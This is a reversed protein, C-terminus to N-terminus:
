DSEDMDLEEIVMISSSDAEAESPVDALSGKNSEPTEFVIKKSIQMDEPMDDCPSMEIMLAEMVNNLMTTSFTDDRRIGLAKDFYDVAMINNGMLVYCYGIASYTSPNQPSLVQAQRHYDLAEEYRKLKRCTHGLNNLLPEWKEVMVQNSVCEVKSLAEKFYRHAKMWDLNQFAIVGMEHLVFPDEPAISLAQNFFREALKSNNTLGYELGVYLIPLHCGKMLQSATFYAAMAQDHENETAFSHGFALWAPGYVRDMSTAKSLYRRGPEINDPILLYYCGVAFWSVPKNPYLDVLKHALYFLEKLNKLEVLVAIHLPLCQSNYPDKSLVMSTIKYCDRFECNYYHREALNVVVDLNEKLACLSNPLSQNQPKNYKKVKNEYLFRVLEVEEEPCQLAFPLSDILEREEQASLMHHNVLLDFAEFCYVDQRLSERFCEVALNRNDMAEYIKGRLLNISHEIPEKNNTDIHSESHCPATFSRLKNNDVMDLINLSEQWEKCEYHCLAALYRCASHTKDLKATRLLKSARHYQGTLYLTQAYWYVDEVDGNSLSVIKDAWFLASDYHHTDIYNRVKERLKTLDFSCVSNQKEAAESNGGEGAM